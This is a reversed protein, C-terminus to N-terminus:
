KIPARRTRAERAGARRHCFPKRAGPAHTHKLRACPIVPAWIVALLSRYGPVDMPLSPGEPRAHVSPPVAVYWRLVAAAACAGPGRQRAADRARGVRRVECKRLSAHGGVGDDAASVVRLPRTPRRSM